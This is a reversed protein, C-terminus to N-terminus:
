KSLLKMSELFPDFVPSILESGFVSLHDDDNYLPIGNVAARCVDEQCLSKWPEIIQIGYEEEFSRFITFTRQNRTLYEEMSPAIIQNIDRGTRSAIFNASPVDYGIEPLPAIIIVNRDMAILTTITRELGLRFIEEASANAPAENLTDKISASRGEEQKYYSGEVWRTWRSALIITKIEPHDTLYSLVMENYKVCSTDGFQPDPFMGLLTPCGQAYTLTGALEYQKASIHIAKGYTPTHSDGWIIFSPPETSDGIECPIIAQPDDTLNINCEKLLWAEEKKTDIALHELGPREPFGKFFYVVSGAFLMMAMGVAAFAYIQRTSLFQKSRFPTEVFRWSLTSVILTAAILIWTEVSTMQRIMYYKAFIILPWHWLYLSYSIKGIFVLPPFSLLRGALSKGELGSFIILAAGLVPPLASIGPFNTNDTYQFIPFAIMALGVLGIVNRQTKGVGAPILNLALIGGVLLEWARLHALYFAASPDTTMTFIGLGLSLAATGMLIAPAPKRAYRYLAAMFLPFVIYFQEEVALSWTHLLPKLRSPADFYGSEQWFNINSAFLTTAIVSKGFQRFKEADYMIACVAVTFAVVVLLAPLIRRIRREYFKILSFDNLEIERVIITTILYGSIVFFIDVGIFGGSFLGIGAHNLLVALVSIARLGDIDERYNLKM